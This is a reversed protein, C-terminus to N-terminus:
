LQKIGIDTLAKILLLKFVVTKLMLRVKICAFGLLTRSDKTLGAFMHELIVGNPHNMKGYHSCNSVQNKEHIPGKGIM